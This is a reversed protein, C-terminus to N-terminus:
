ARFRKSHSGSSCKRSSPHPTDRRAVRRGCGSQPIAELRGPGLDLQVPCDPRHGYLGRRALRHGVVAAAERALTLGLPADSSYEGVLLFPAAAALVRTKIHRKM